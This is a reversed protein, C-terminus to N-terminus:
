KNCKNLRNCKTMAFINILRGLYISKLKYETQSSNNQLSLKYSVKTFIIVALVELLILKQHRIIAVAM